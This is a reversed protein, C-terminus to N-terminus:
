KSWFRRTVPTKLVVPALAVAAAALALSDPIVPPQLGPGDVVVYDNPLRICLQQGIKAEAYLVDLRSPKDLNPVYEAVERMSVGGPWQYGNAADSMAFEYDKAFEADYLRMFANSDAFRRAAERRIQQITLYNAGGRMRIVETPAIKMLSTAKVIAPAAIAVGIFGLLSRREIM